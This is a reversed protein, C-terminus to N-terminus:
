MPRPNPIDIVRPLSAEEPLSEQEIKSIMINHGWRYPKKTVRPSARSKEWKVLGKIPMNTAEENKSM